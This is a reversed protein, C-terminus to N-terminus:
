SLMTYFTRLSGVTVSVTSGNHDASDSVDVPRLLVVSVSPQDCHCEELGHLVTLIKPHKLKELYWVDKRLTEAVVERRRPKHLKDAIRKEFVFVSAEQLPLCVPQNSDTSKIM